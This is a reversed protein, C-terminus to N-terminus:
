FTVGAGASAEALWLVTHWTAGGEVGVYIRDRLTLRAGLKTADITARGPAYVFRNGLYVDLDGFRRGVTVSTMAAPGWGLTRVGGAGGGVALAFGNRSTSLVGLRAEGFASYVEYHAGVELWDALGVHAHAVAVTQPLSSVAVGAGLDVRGAPLTDAPRLLSYTGCGGSAVATVLIATAFASARTPRTCSTYM